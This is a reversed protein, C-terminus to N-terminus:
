CNQCGDNTFYPPIYSLTVGQYIKSIDQVAGKVIIFSRTPAGKICVSKTM